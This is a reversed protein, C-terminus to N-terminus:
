KDDWTLIVFVAFGIVIVAVLASLAWEYPNTSM